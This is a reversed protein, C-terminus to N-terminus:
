HECLKGMHRPRGTERTSRTPEEPEPLTEQSLPPTLQHPPRTGRTSRRPEEPDPLTEEEETGLDAFPYADSM